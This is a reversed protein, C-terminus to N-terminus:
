RKKKTVKVRSIGQSFKSPHTTPVQSDQFTNWSLFNIKFLFSAHSTRDWWGLTKLVLFWYLLQTNLLQLCFSFALYELTNGAEIGSARAVGKWTAQRLAQGEGKGLEKEKKKTETKQVGCALVAQM